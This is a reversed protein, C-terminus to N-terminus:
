HKHRHHVDPTHPHEHEIEDHRHWHSHPIGPPDQPGHTHDHHEDYLGRQEARMRAANLMSQQSDLATVLAGRSAAEIAYTGDGTGVDLVRRGQLRGGLAFVVETEAHETM